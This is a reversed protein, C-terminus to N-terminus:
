RAQAKGIVGPLVQDLAATLEDHWDRPWGNYSIVCSLAEYFPLVAIRARTAHEEITIQSVIRPAGDM